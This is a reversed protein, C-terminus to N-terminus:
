RAMLVPLNIGAVMTEVLGILSPLYWVHVAPGGSPGCAGGLLGVVSGLSGGMWRAMQPTWMDM